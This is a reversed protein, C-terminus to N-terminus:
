KEPLLGKRLVHINIARMCTIFIGLARVLADACDGHQIVLGQWDFRDIVRTFIAWIKGVTKGKLKYLGKSVFLLVEIGGPWLGSSSKRTTVERWRWYVESDSESCKGSKGSNKEQLICTGLTKKYWGGM